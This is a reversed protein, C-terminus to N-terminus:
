LLSTFTLRVAIVKSIYDELSVAIQNPKKGGRPVLNDMCKEIIDASQDNDIIGHSLKEPPNVPLEEPTKWRM